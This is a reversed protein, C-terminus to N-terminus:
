RGHYCRPIILAIPLGILFMILLMGKLAPVVHFNKLSSVGALPLVLLNM